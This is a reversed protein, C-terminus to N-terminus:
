VPAANLFILQQLDSEFSLRLKDSKLVEAPDDGVLIGGNAKQVKFYKEFNACIFALSVPFPPCMVYIIYLPEQRRRIIVRCMNSLPWLCCVAIETIAFIIVMFVMLMIIIIQGDLGHSKSPIQTSIMMMMLIMVLIMMMMMMVMMMLIMMM